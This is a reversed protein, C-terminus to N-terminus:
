KVLVMKKTSVFNKTGEVTINYFYIGSAINSANWKVDYNGAEMQSNVLTAVEQGIANIVTIKVKGAVPLAYKITTSPNFPNPYNQELAFEKPLSVEASAVSLGANVIQGNLNVVEGNVLDFYTSTGNTFNDTAKFRLYAITGEKDLKLGKEDAFAIRIVGNEAKSIAASGKLGEFEVLNADYNLELTYAGVVTAGTLKVPVEFSAKPAVAKVESNDYSMSAAKTVNGTLSQNADGVAMGKIVPVTVASTGVTIAKEEFVWSGKEFTTTIGVVRQLINLADLNSVSGSANVDAAMEQVADFTVEENAKKAVLLADAATLASTPYNNAKSVKVTYSGGEVAAFSYAGAADTTTEKVKTAGQYLGVTAGGIASVETNNYKVTGSVAVTIVQVTIEAQTTITATGDTAKVKIVVPFAQATKPAWSFVGTNADLTADTPYPGNFSYTIADMDLDEAKYTFTLVDGVFVTDNVMQGNTAWTPAANKNVVTIGVTDAATLTGDSAIVELTYSGAQVYSPTWTYVGATTIAGANTAVVEGAKKLQATFAITNGDADTVKPGFDLTLLANEDVTTDAMTHAFVPARNTNTVNFVVVSDKTGTNSDTVRFTVTYSNGDTGYAPKFAFDAGTLTMTAPQSPTVSVLSYTFGTNDADEDSAALTLTYNYDEAVNVPNVPANTFVPNRNVNTITVTTTTTDKQGYQDTATIKVTHVGASTYTTVWNFVGTTANVTAGTPASLIAYTVADNIDPDTAGVTYTVTELENKTVAAVEVNFVPPKNSQSYTFLSGQQTIGGTADIVKILPWNTAITSNDYNADAGQLLWQNNVNGSDRRILRVNQIGDLIYDDYGEAQFEVDFKYSPALAIDSKVYWQFAPYNTITQNGVTMPIGNKGGPKVDAPNVTLNISSQPATKFYFNAPRYEGAESGTPFEVKSIAVLDTKDIFKKVNGAVVGATRTFGQLPQDAISAEQKLIVNATGSTQLIGKTLILENPDNAAVNTSLDLNGGSLTVLNTANTKNIKVSIDKDVVWNGGLTLAGNTAGAFVLSSATSAIPAGTGGVLDIYANTVTLTKGNLELEGDDIIDLTQVTINDHLTLTNTTAAGDITLTGFTFDKDLVDDDATRAATQEFTVNLVGAPIVPEDLTGGIYNVLYITSNDAMKNAYTAGAIIAGAVKLTGNVQLDRALTLTTGANVTANNLITAGTPVENSTTIAAATTYALNVTGLYNPDEALTAANAQREVTVGSALILNEPDTGTTNADLAAALVLNKNVTFPQATTMTVTNQMIKLNDVSWDTGQDVDPAAAGANDIIFYGDTMTYNGATRTWAADIILNNIGLNVDGATQVFNTTIGLDIGTPTTNGDVLTLSTANLTLNAIDLDVKSNYTMNSGSFTVMGTGPFTGAVVTFTNGSLEFLNAGTDFNGKTLKFSNTIELDGSTVDTNGYTTTSSVELNSLALDTTLIMDGVVYASGAAAEVTFTAAACTIVNTTTNVATIAYTGNNTTSGVIEISNGVVFKSADAVVFTTGATFGAGAIASSNESMIVKGTGSIVGDNNHILNNKVTLNYSGLNIDADGTAGVSLTSAFVLNSGLNLTGTQLVSPEAIDDFSAGTLALTVTGATLELDGLTAKDVVTTKGDNVLTLSSTGLTNTFLDINIINNLTFTEAAAGLNVTLLEITRLATIATGGNITSGDGTVILTGAAAAVDIVKGKITHTVADGALTLNGDQLDLTETGDVNLVGSISVVKGLRIVAGGTTEVSLNRIGSAIVEDTGTMSTTEFYTLDYTVGAAVAVTVAANITSAVTYFNYENNKSYTDEFTLTFAGALAGSRHNIIGNLTISQGLTTNARMDLNSYTAAGTITSAGDIILFSEDNNSLYGTSGNTFTGGLMRLHNDLLFQGKTITFNDNVKVAQTLTVTETALPKDIEINAITLQAGPTFTTNGDGQFKLLGTGFTVDNLVNSDRFWNGEIVFTNAGFNLTGGTNQNYNGEVTIGAGALDIAGTSTLNGAVVLAADVDLTGSVIVNGYATCAADVELEKAAAITVNPLEGTGAVNVQAGTIYLLGTGITAATTSIIKGANTLTTAANSLTLTYTNLKIIATANNNSISAGSLTFNATLIFDGGATNNVLNTGTGGKVSIQGAGNTIVRATIAASATLEGAGNTIDVYPSYDTGGVDVTNVTFGQLLNLEGAGNVITTAHNAGAVGDHVFSLNGNVTLNSTATGANSLVNVIAASMSVTVNQLSVMDDATAAMALAADTLTLTGSITLGGETVSVGGSTTLAQNVTVTKGASALSVTLIGAGIDTPLEPGATIDASGNYTVNLDSYTPTVNISGATRTITAATEMTVNAAAINLVGKTLTLDANTKILFKLGTVGFSVIDSANTTNIVLGNITATNLGTSGFDEVRLTMDNPVTVTEAYVGPEIVVTGGDGAITIGKSITLYPNGSTGNGNLDDGDTASVYVQAFVSSMTVMLVLLLFSLKKLLKNQNM